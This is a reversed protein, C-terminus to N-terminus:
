DACSMCDEKPKPKPPPKPDSRPGPDDIIVDPLKWHPAARQVGQKVSVDKAGSAPTKGQKKVTATAPSCDKLTKALKGDPCVAQGEAGSGLAVLVAAASFFAVIMSRSM